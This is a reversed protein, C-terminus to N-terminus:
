LHSDAGGAEAQVRDAEEAEAIEAAIKVEQEKALQYEADAKKKEALQEAMEKAKEQALTKNGLKEAKFAEDQAARSIEEPQEELEEGRTDVAVMYTACFRFRDVLLTEGEERIKNGYYARTTLKVRIKERLTKADM